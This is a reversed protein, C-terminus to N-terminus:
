CGAFIPKGRMTAVCWKKIGEIVPSNTISCIDATRSLENTPDLHHTIQLRVCKDVGDM